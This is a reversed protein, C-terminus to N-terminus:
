RADEFVCRDWDFPRPLDRILSAHDAYDAHVHRGIVVCGVKSAGGAKLAAAASQASAGTTWTDDILLVSDGSLAETIEYRREAFQRPEVEEGTRRLLTAHRDRVPGIQAVIAPLPHPPVRTVSGSPVTTVRDFREVACTFAVCAEHDRLFRWLTAAVRARQSAALPSRKYQRLMDHAASMHESLTIPAVADLFAPM